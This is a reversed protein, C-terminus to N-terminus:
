SVEHLLMKYEEELSQLVSESDAESVRMSFQSLELEAADFKSVVQAYPDSSPVIAQSCKRYAAVKRKLKQRELALFRAEEIERKKERVLRLRQKLERYNQDADRIITPLLKEMHRVVKLCHQAMAVRPRMDIYAASSQHFGSQERLVSGYEAHRRQIIGPLIKQQRRLYLVEHLKANMFEEMEEDDEFAVDHRQLYRELAVRTSHPLHQRLRPQDSHAIYLLVYLTEDGDSTDATIGENNMAGVDPDPTAEPLKGKRRHSKRREFQRIRAVERQYSSKQPRKLEDTATAINAAHELPPSETRQGDDHLRERAWSDPTYIVVVRGNWSHKSVTRSSLRKMNRLRYLRLKEPLSELTYVRAELAAQSGASNCPNINEVTHDCIQDGGIPTIIEVSYVDAHNDRRLFNEVYYKEDFVTGILSDDEVNSQSELDQPPVEDQTFSRALRKKHAEQFPNWSDAMWAARRAASSQPWPSSSM